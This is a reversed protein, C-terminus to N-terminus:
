YDNEIKNSILDNYSDVCERNYRTLLREQQELGLEFFFEIQNSTWNNVFSSNELLEDNFDNFELMVIDYSGLGNAIWAFFEILDRSYLSHFPGEKNLIYEALQSIDMTLDFYHLVQNQNGPTLQHVFRPASHQCNRYRFIMKQYLPIDWKYEIKSLDITVDEGNSPEIWIAMIDEETMKSFKILKSKFKEIAVLTIHNMRNSM